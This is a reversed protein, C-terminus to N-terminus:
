KLTGEQEMPLSSARQASDSLGGAVATAPAAFKYTMASVGHAPPRLLLREQVVGHKHKKDASKVKRGLLLGDATLTMPIWNGLEPLREDSDLQLIQGDMADLQILKGDLWVEAWVRSGIATISWIRPNVIPAIVQPVHPTVPNHPAPPLPTAAPATLGLHAREAEALERMKRRRAAEISQGMTARFIKSTEDETQSDPINNELKAGEAASPQAPMQRSASDIAGSQVNDAGIATLSCPLLLGLVVLWAYIGTNMRNSLSESNRPKPM